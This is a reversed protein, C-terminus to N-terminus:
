DPGLAAFEVSVAEAVAPWKGFVAVSELCLFLDLSALLKFFHVLCPFLSCNPLVKLVGPRERIKAFVFHSLLSPIIIINTSRVVFM